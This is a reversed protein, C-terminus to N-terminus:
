RYRGDSYMSQTYSSEYQRQRVARYYTHIASIAISAFIIFPIMSVGMDAYTIADTFGPTHGSAVMEALRADVFARVQHYIPMLCIMIFIGMLIRHFILKIGEITIKVDWAILIAKIIYLAKTLKTLHSLNCAIHLSM